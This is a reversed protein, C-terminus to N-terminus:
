NSTTRVTVATATVVGSADAEGTISVTAGSKVRLGAPVTVQHATGGLDTVTWTTGQAATVTGIVAPAAATASTGSSGSSSAGSSSAGGATGGAAAGPFSGGGPMAGTMGAPAGSGGTAAAGWRQQVEVGGLFVLGAVLLGVLGWRVRSRRHTETIWTDDLDNDIATATM